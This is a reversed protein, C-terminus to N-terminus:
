QAPRVDRGVLMEIEALRKARDAVAREYSLDFELLTREADILDLFSAKGTTFAQQMVHLSQKVKPLLTDRYLDIKREADRLGFAAMKLDATLTNERDAREDLAALYRAHAETVAARYKARWIPLNVSVMAVLPDKGSEDMGHMRAAGTDIYDLGVTVDPYYDKAALEAAIRQKEAAFDIAKLDPNSEALWQALQEDTFTAAPQELATPWPVDADADRGMAANLKALMPGRLDRQTRLRDDLVGLEIQARIVDANDAAAARYRARAIKELEAMLRLNEETAAISRALYYYEYYADKVRRFLRLKAAQYREGAAHAEQMAVDGRLGRKGFWPFTQALGVGHRQPGVRTEVEEIYYRYTLRPDPLATAQPVREIAAKWENFAAELGPNNLAAYALCDSLNRIESHPIRLEPDASGLMAPGPSPVTTACGAILAVLVIASSGARTRVRGNRVGCESNRFRMM